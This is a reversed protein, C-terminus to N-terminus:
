KGVRNPPESLFVVDGHVIHGDVPCWRWWPRYRWWRWRQRHLSSPHLLQHVSIIVVWERQPVPSERPSLLLALAHPLRKPFIADTAEMITTDDEPIDVVFTHWSGGLQHGVM